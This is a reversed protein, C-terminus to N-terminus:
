RAFRGHLLSSLSPIRYCSAHLRQRGEFNLHCYSAARSGGCQANPIGQYTEQSPQHGIPTSFIGRRQDQTFCTLCSAHMHLHTAMSVKTVLEGLETAHDEFDILVQNFGPIVMVIQNYTSVYSDLTAEGSDTDLCDTGIILFALYCLKCRPLSPLKLRM